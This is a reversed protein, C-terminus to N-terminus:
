PLRKTNLLYGYFYVAMDARLKARRFMEKDRPRDSTKSGWKAYAKACRQLWRLAKEEKETFTQKPM